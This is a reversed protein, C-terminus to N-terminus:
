RMRWTIVNYTGIVVGALILGVVAGIIGWALYIAM